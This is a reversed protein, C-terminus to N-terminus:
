SQVEGKFTNGSLSVLAVKFFDGPSGGTRGAPVPFVVMENQGTRGLLQGEGKKSFNEALVTATKGIEQKRLSRSIKKQLEIVEQLRTIKVEHPVTEGLKFAETGERPNYYYTFSESFDAEIMLDLLQRFDEEEEGPFGVMLDTTVTAGPLIRRISRVRNMYYDRTYRRNMAALMRDSGHQAPLHINRCFVPSSSLVDLIGDTLDKPHSTLFRVWINEPVRGAILSLLGAFDTEGHSYSNVNQGLLTIEKVGRGLYHDIEEFLEEPARSIERGRVYPVICYTCFNDCGHMIPIFTAASAGNGHFKSFTYETREKGGGSLILPLIKKDFTGVVSDVAPVQRILEDKLREAMCGTISLHFNKKKKLATYVGLRGYIRNEASKRVSCTNMIVVDADDPSHAPIYGYEILEKELAASEAKNMQCGYTELWYANKM